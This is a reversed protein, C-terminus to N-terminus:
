DLKSIHVTVVPNSHTYRRMESKAIVVRNVSRLDNKAVRTRHIPAMNM